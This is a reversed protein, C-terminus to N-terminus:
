VLEAAVRDHTLADIFYYSPHIPMPLTAQVGALTRDDLFREDDNLTEAPILAFDVGTCEALAREIDAGVLLGATTVTKGFLSNVAPILHFRAGTAEELTDLIAPLIPAMASGTVVAIRKGDLRPLEPIGERVRKRLLTVAGVGNEVQAFEGYHDEDPLQTGALLYLEDSGTVWRIGREALARTAWASVQALLAGAGGADMPQGTYLHSFQTTGVPVVAVTLVCEGLDWLDSLTQELVAGDNFGPVVVM